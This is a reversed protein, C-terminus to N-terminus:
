HWGRHWGYHPHHWGWGFRPNFEWVWGVGPSQYAPPLYVVGAPVVVGPPPLAAGVPAAAPPAPPIAGQVAISVQINVFQGPPNAMEVGYQRGAYEYTVQYTTVSQVTNQTSCNTVNQVDVKPTELQNGIVAGGVVGLATGAGRQGGKGLANGIIGGAVAGALAGEGTKPEQVAVQNTACVQQPVMVQKILPTVSVVRAQEQSQALASGPAALTCSLLTLSLLTSNILASNLLTSNLLTFRVLAVDDRATRVRPMTSPKNFTM